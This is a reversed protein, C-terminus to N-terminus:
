PGVGPSPPRSAGPRTIKKVVPPGFTGDVLTGERADEPSLTQYRFYRTRVAQADPHDEAAKTLVWESFGLWHKRYTKWSYRFVASRVRDHDLQWARWTYERSREVYIPTWVGERQVEVYLRAPYRQPAVFMRWSQWTGCYRYYPMFPALVKERASMFPVAFRWLHDEFEDVTMHVGLRELRGTWASFEGQVTPDDWAARNMGGGPAPLAMLTVVVLHLAVLAARAHPWLGARAVLVAVLSVLLLATIAYPWTM